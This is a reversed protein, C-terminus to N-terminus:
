TIWSIAEVVDDLDHASSSSMVIRGRPNKGLVCAIENGTDVDEITYNGEVTRYIVSAADGVTLSVRDEESFTAAWIRDMYDDNVVTWGHNEQMATDIVSM